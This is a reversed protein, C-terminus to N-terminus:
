WINRLKNELDARSYDDVLPMSIEVNTGMGPMSRYNLGYTSGFCLRIRSHVNHVAIGTHTGNSSRAQPNESNLKERLQILQELDMGGGNDVVHIYLTDETTSVNLWIEGRGTHGEIGHVIANEVIPQITLKPVYYQLVDNNEIHVHLQIRDGFRFQQIGFYDKVNRIEEALRVIDGRSSICYRFFRSLKETMQAIEIQDNELAQGRIGDLTNYLFHPNIQNMFLQLDRSKIDGSSYAGSNASFHERTQQTLFRLTASVNGLPIWMVICLILVLGLCVMGCTTHGTWFFIEAVVGFLIALTLIIRTIKM